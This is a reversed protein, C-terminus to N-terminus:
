LMSGLRVADSFIEIKYDDTKIPNNASLINARWWALDERISNALKMSREFNNNNAKLALTKERELVKVGLLMYVWGYRLARCCAGLTGVFSAFDRITCSRLKEFKQIESLVKTRKERPLEILMRRSNLIFGLYQCIRSPKWQSKEKNLIFGLDELLWRTVDRNRVCLDYSNGFLLLDDLYVVSIFGSARLLAIVSRMIKTFIYPAINLGFPLCCFEWLKGRFSFRLFKRHSKKIPIVYYADKLDITVM